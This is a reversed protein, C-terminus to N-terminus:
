AFRFRPLLGFPNPASRTSQPRPRLTSGWGLPNARESRGRLSENNVRPLLHQTWKELTEATISMLQVDPGLYKELQELYIEYAARTEHVILREDELHGVTDGRRPSEVFLFKSQRGRCRM